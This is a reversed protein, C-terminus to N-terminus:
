GAADDFAQFLPWEGPVGKLSTPGRAEFRLGSGAVLDKVTASVLVEGAGAQASIRAGIHVAMGSVKAGANEVEGTHLGARLELGIARAGRVMAAACRVARAPGDFTAFLGDGATDIERGRHAELEKRAAAHFRQQLDRWASDGLRAALETSGVIDTFLVTALWREDSPTESRASRGTGFRVIAETVRTADGEWFFHDDGPLELYEAHPLHDALYRGNAVKVARDRRRHLILTPRHVQPLIARVDIQDNAMQLRKIASPSTSQRQYRALAEGFAVDNVRSPAFLAVADPTGWTASTFRLIEEIAPSHPYDPARSFRAMSSLLILREVMEPYTATFLAGMPGGESYALLVTRKSGVARLVDRVDDMREELTPVGEFRDSLGQGRKDFLIVRFHSGLERFVRAFGPQEWTLEIHSVIGPVFVLDTTGQGFVQYAISM